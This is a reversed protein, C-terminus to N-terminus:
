IIRLTSQNNRSVVVWQIWLSKRFPLAACLTQTMLVLKQKRDSKRVKLFSKYAWETTAFYLCVSINHTQYSLSHPAYTFLRCLLRDREQICSVSWYSESSLILVLYCTSISATIHSHPFGNLKGNRSCNYLDDTKNTLRDLIHEQFQKYFQVNDANSLDFPHLHRNASVNM